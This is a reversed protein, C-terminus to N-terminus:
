EVRLDFVRQGEFTNIHLRFPTSSGGASKIASLSFSAHIKKAYGPPDNDDSHSLYLDIDTARTEQFLGFVHTKSNYQIEFILNLWNGSVWVSQIKVPKRSLSNATETKQISGTFIESLNNVKIINDRLPTYNIIVRQGNKGSYNSLREPILTKNNDLLFSLHADTRVVTAFEILFNEMRDTKKECAAALFLFIPLLIFFKRKM